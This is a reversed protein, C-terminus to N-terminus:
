CTKTTMNGIVIVYVDSSPTPQTNRRMAAKLVSFKTRVQKVTPLESTKSQMTLGVHTLLSAYIHRPMLTSTSTLIEEMATIYRVDMGRRRESVQPTRPVGGGSVGHRRQRERSTMVSSIVSQIHHTSPIDYGNPHLRELERQMRPPSM